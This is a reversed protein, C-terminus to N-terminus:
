AWYSNADDWGIISDRSLKKPRPQDQRSQWDDVNQGVDMAFQGWQNGADRSQQAGRQYGSAQGTRANGQASKLGMTNDYQQQALGANYRNVNSRMGANYRNVSDIASAKDSAARYNLGRVQGALGGAAELAHMRRANEGSAVDLGGEYARMAGAQGAQEDLAQALASSRLGSQNMRQRATMQQATAMRDAGLRAQEYQARSSTSGGERGENEIARLAAMQSQIPASDETMGEYESKPAYEYALRELEPLPIAGYEKAIQERIAQARAEDGAAKADGFSKALLGIGAGILMPIM